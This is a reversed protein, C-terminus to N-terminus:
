TFLRLDINTHLLVTMMEFATFNWLLHCQHLWQGLSSDPLPISLSLQWQKSSLYRYVATDDNNKSKMSGRPGIAASPM